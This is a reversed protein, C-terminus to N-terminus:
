GKATAGYFFDVKTVFIESIDVLIPHGDEADDLSVIGIEGAGIM